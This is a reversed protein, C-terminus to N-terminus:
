AAGRRRAALVRLALLAGRVTGTLGAVALGPSRVVQRRGARRLVEVLYAPSQAVWRLVVRAPLHKAAFLLRNRCNYSFYVPTKAHGQTGGVSHVAALDTRVRLAGGARTCRYSLDIDEWYLFYDDDFGGLLTWLRSHVVLCAATLWPEGQLGHGEAVHRARGDELDLVAGEFWTRGNPRVVRPTTLSLPEALAHDRLAVAVEPTVHADPNLLLFVSCGLQEAREVGANNAAGFGLNTTPLVLHWGQRRGADVVADRESASSWNDVVVVTAGVRDAQLLALNTELLACSAYSVVIVAFESPAQVFRM